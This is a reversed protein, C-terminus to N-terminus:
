SVGKKTFNPQNNEFPKIIGYISEMYPVEVGMAKALRIAGGHLHDLELVYGKRRDQHMSSTAKDPLSMLKSKADEVDEESVNVNHANAILKMEQLMMEAIRFTEQKSRIPGIPLNTATTIGSFANIFMYKKWLERLIDDSAEVQINAKSAIEKLQHCISTQTAELSGFVLQHFDSNHEVHGKENLTAMIFSLGGLVFDKGLENQLIPIHEIGNLVPLIYAGKKRLEKLSHFTGELHYGKVSLFVLDVEDIEEVKKVVNPDEFTYNGKTSNVKLGHKEIQSARNERVLFTVKEGAEELRAGFYVGLAGAGVVVINM